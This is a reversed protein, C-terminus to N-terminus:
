IDTSSEDDYGIFCNDLAKRLAEEAIKVSEKKKAIEREKEMQELKELVESLRSRKDKKPVKADGDDDNNADGDDDNKSKKANDEDEFAAKRAQMELEGYQGWHFDCKLCGYYNPNATSCYAYHFRNKTLRKHSYAYGTRTNFGRPYQKLLDHAVPPAHPNHAIIAAMDENWADTMTQTVEQLATWWATWLDDGFQRDWEVERLHPTLLDYRYHRKPVKAIVANWNGEITNTNVWKRHKPSWEKFGKDHNVPMGRIGEAALIDTTGQTGDAYGRWYDHALWTGPRVYKLIFPTLTAQNRNPCVEMRLKKRDAHQGEECVGVVWSGNVMHGRNYKRKGFLSEDVQCEKMRYQKRDVGEADGPASSTAYEPIEYDLWIPAQSSTTFSMYSRESTKEDAIEDVTCSSSGSGQFFRYEEVSPEDEINDDLVSDENGSNVRNSSKSDARMMANVSSSSASSSSEDGSKKGDRNKRNKKHAKAEALKAKAEEMFNYKRIMGPVVPVPGGGVKQGLLHPYEKGAIVPENTKSKKLPRAPVESSNDSDDVDEMDEDDEVENNDSEYFGGVKLMEENWTGRHIAKVTRVTEQIKQVTRRDVRTMCCITKQEVFSMSLYVVMVMDATSTNFKELLTGELIKHRCRCSHKTCRWYYKNEKLTPYALRGECPDLLVNRGNSTKTYNQKGCVGNERNRIFKNQLLYELADQETSLAIIEKLPPLSFKPMIIKDIM